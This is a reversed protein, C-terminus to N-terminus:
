KLVFKKLAEEDIQAVRWDEFITAGTSKYFDIAITNWNLVEWEVRKFKNNYAYKLVKTYLASGIGKGRHKEQVVLDELHISRGEWTSYRPYFLAMGVIENNLEAVIVEFFPAKGFGDNILDEETIKVANPENEFIALEKILLLVSNMDNKEASRLKLDM